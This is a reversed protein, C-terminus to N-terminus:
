FKKSTNAKKAQMDPGSLVQFTSLSPPCHRPLRWVSSHPLYPIDVGHDSKGLTTTYVLRNKVTMKEERIALAPSL